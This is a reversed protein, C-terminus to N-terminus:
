GGLAEALSRVVLEGEGPLLTRPDLLLKGDAIRALVPPRGTRLRCALENVPVHLPSVVVLTTPLEHNPLAGGGVYSVGPIAEVVASGGVADRLRGALDEAEAALLAPPATIMRLVPVERRAVEEDLYHRLTAELAALVLKDVRLARALPHRRCREVFAEQGLIIGCQPGGLLKDGSCTIMAAGAATAARLSPEEGQWGSGPTGPWLLGSGLDYMVPVALERGLGVLDNLSVSATFGVVRYNSPHVKLFLATDPGAALRYDTLRTKNTTGVEVLRAGGQVMVDPIRFSGGIEVLEGRSVLVDKGAALASLCILVAAANNNVVFASEAGTLERLLGEVHVQRSGRRGTELNMELNTYGSAAEYAARAASESLVARGLNTHLVVGTANIVRRLSPAFRRRVTDELRAALREVQLDAEAPQLRGERIGGRLSALLEEAAGKVAAHGYTRRLSPIRGTEILRHVAPLNRLRNGPRAM